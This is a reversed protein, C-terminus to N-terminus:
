AAKNERPARAKNAVPEAAKAEDEDTAVPEATADKVAKLTVGYRKADEASLEGGEGVLLTAARPDGEEVVTQGDEALYLRRDSKWTAM